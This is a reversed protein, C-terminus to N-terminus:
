NINTPYCMIEDENSVWNCESIRLLQMTYYAATEIGSDPRQM